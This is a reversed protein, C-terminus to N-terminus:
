KQAFEPFVYSKLSTKTKLCNVNVNEEHCLGMPQLQIMGNNVLLSAIDTIFVFHQLNVLFYMLKLMLRVKILRVQEKKIEACGIYVADIM